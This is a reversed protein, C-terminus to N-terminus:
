VAKKSSVIIKGEKRPEAVLYSLNNATLNVGIGELRKKLEEQTWKEHKKALYYLNALFIKREYMWKSEAGKGDMDDMLALAEEKKKRYQEENVAYKGYFKGHFSSRIRYTYTKKGKLYLYRLNKRNYGVWYGIKGDKEYIHFLGRARSLVAYKNFEFVSPLIIIVFLNKQRMQMMMSKLLRGIRTISEAASLGTVAEDYIICNGKKANVIAKKFEDATMCIRDLDLTPDVYRGIQHSFTSNHTIMWNDTIYWKSKSDIEIGYVQCPKSKIIDISTRNSTLYFTSDKKVKYDNCLNLKLNGLYITLSFYTGIFGLSKISKKVEKIEGTRGGISYVLNRIDEILQKSKLTFQYGGNSYYGDTDILGELLKIRYGLDSLLAEKPIFKNGSNKGILRHKILQKAFEGNLSFRYQKSKNGKKKYISMIPYYESIRKLIEFKSNTINLSRQKKSSFSGDGLFVGLSYPEISCNVRGNYKKIPFSSLSSTNTKLHKSLTSYYRAEYNKIKWYGKLRKKIKLAEFKDKRNLKNEEETLKERPSIKVNIPVLHNGSCTYLKTKNKNLNIVDYTDECFWNSTRTVKAFTNTGDAQPSVVLDGKNVNEIKKWTGDAMLVNSGKSLCKGAGEYGDVLLVYDQDRMNIREKVCRDLYKVLEAKITYSLNKKPNNPDAVPTGDDYLIDVM